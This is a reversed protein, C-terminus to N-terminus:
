MAKINFAISLLNTGYENTGIGYTGGITLLNYYSRSTSVIPDGAVRTGAVFAFNDCWILSYAISSFLCLSILSSLLASVILCNMFKGQDGSSGEM